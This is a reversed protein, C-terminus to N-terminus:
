SHDYRPAARIGLLKLVHTGLSWGRCHFRAAIVGLSPVAVSSAGPVATTKVFPRHEHRGAKRVRCKTEHRPTAPEQTQTGKLTMARPKQGQAETAEPCRAKTDVLAASHLPVRFRAEAM